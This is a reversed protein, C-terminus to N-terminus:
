TYAQNLVTFGCGLGSNVTMSLGNSNITATAGSAEVDFPSPRVRGAFSYSVNNLVQFTNLLVYPSRTFGLPVVNSGVPAIGIMVIQSVALTLNVLLQDPSATDADVGPPSIFLGYDTGRKGIIVRKVM